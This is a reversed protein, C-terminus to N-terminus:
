KPPNEAARAETVMREAEALQDPSLQFRLGFLEFDAALSVQTAALSLWKYAEVLNAVEGEGRALNYGLYYQASRDGQEAALRFWHDAAAKDVPMGIGQDHIWGAFYQSERDGQDGAMEYWHLALAMDKQTGLGFRYTRALLRQAKLSGAEAAKGYWGARSCIWIRVSRSRGKSEARRYPCAPQHQHRPM